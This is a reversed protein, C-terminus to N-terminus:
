ENITTDNNDGKNRLNPATGEYSAPVIIGEGFHLNSMIDSSVDMEEIDKNYSEKEKDEALQKDRSMRALMSPDPKMWSNILIEVVRMRLPLRNYNKDEFIFKVEYGGNVSEPLEPTFYIEPPYWREIIYRGKLHPYKPVTLVGTETRLFVDGYYINYTGRRLEIQEDTWVLRFLPKKPENPITGFKSLFKNILEADLSENKNFQQTKIM